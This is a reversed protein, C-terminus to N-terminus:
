SCYIEGSRSHDCTCVYTKRYAIFHQFGTASIIICLIVRSSRIGRFLKRVSHSKMRLSLLVELFYQETTSGMRLSSWGCVLLFCHSLRFFSKRCCLLCSGCSLATWYSLEKSFESTLVVVYLMIFLVVSFHQEIAENSYGWNLVWGYVWLRPGCLWTLNQNPFSIRTAILAIIGINVEWSNSYRKIYILSFTLLCNRWISKM